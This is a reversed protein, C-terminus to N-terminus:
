YTKVLFVLFLKGLFLVYKEGFYFFIEGIKQTFIKFNPLSKYNKTFM